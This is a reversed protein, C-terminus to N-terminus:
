PINMQVDESYASEDGTADVSTVVYYYTQGDVVTTDTYTLGGVPSSTIKAYVSGSAM